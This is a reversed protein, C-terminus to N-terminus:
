LRGPGGLHYLLFDTGYVNFHRVDFTTHDGKAICIVHGEMYCGLVGNRVKCVNGDQCRSQACVVRKSSPQCVRTEQCHKDTWFNEKPHDYFDQYLCGCQGHPVCEGGILLYGRNCQCSEVCPLTCNKNAEPNSCIEYHSNIYVLATLSVFLRLM